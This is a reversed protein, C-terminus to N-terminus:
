TQKSSPPLGALGHSLPRPPWPALLGAGPQKESSYECNNDERSQPRAVKAEGTASAARRLIIHFHHPKSAPLQSAPFPSRPTSNSFMILM